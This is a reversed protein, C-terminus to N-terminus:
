DNMNVYNITSFEENHSIIFCQECNILETLRTLVNIFGTRNKTDLGGDIEDLKIINYTRSSNYLIAFSIVMGLMCIQSTSMSTIDDNVIGNGYCPIRFENENIVFESLYFRGDFLLELLHNATVIVNNMFAKMYVTQIGTTPSTYKKVTEVKDYWKSLEDYERNYEDLLRKSNRLYNLRDNLDNLIRRTENNNGELISIDKKCMEIQSKYSDVEKEEESLKKDEEKLKDLENFKENLTKLSSISISINANEKELSEKEKSYKTSNAKLEALKEKYDKLRNKIRPLESAKSKISEYSSKAKYYENEYRSYMTYQEKATNIDALIGSLKEMFWPNNDLENEIKINYYKDLIDVLVKNNLIAKVAKCYFEQIKKINELEDLHNIEKDYTISLNKYLDSLANITEFNSLSYFPCKKNNCDKPIASKNEQRIKSILNYRYSVDKFSDDIKAFDMKAKNLETDIDISLKSKLLESPFNILNVMAKFNDNFIMSSYMTDPISYNFYKKQTENLSNKITNMYCKYDNVKRETSVLLEEIDGEANFQDIYAQDKLIAENTDKIASMSFKLSENVNVWKEYIKDKEKLLEEESYRMYGAPFSDELDAIDKSIIQTKKDLAYRRDNLTEIKEKMSSLSIMKDKLIAIRGTTDNYEKNFNDIRMLTEKINQDFDAYSINSNIRDIKDTISKLLTNYVSSKKSLIKYFGNYAELNDLISNIFRKRDAPKKDALGRDESSMQTLYLFQSDIGFIDMIYERGKTVNGSPNIDNGDVVIYMSKKYMGLKSNYVYKICINIESGDKIYTIYKAGDEGPIIDRSEDPFPNLARLLTSKGSGNSGKIVVIPDDSFCYSFRKKGTGNYIGVYNVLEINRIKM